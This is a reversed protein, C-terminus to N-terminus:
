KQGQRLEDITKWDKSIPDQYHWLSWGNCSRWGTVVQGAKSPSSYEINEYRVEGNPSLLEAYFIQGKTNAKITLPYMITPLPSQSIVPSGNAVEISGVVGTWWEEDLTRLTLQETKVGISYDMLLDLLKDGDVLSIRAKGPAQAEQQAGKSFKSTTIIIGQEHVTLSGRLGQVVPAQVPNKWRKVQVAANVETINGARLVGRVDIGGDASYSTVTVSTEDFGLALLLE